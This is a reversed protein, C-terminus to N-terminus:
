LDQMSDNDLFNMLYTHSNFWDGLNDLPVMDGDPLAASVSGALDNTVPPHPANPVFGLAFAYPDFPAGVGPTPAATADVTFNRPLELASLDMERAKRGSEVYLKAVKLFVQCLRHLKEVGESRQAAPKLSIVFNELRQLDSDDNSEIIHCFLVM